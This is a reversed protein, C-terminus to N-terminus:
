FSSTSEQDKWWKCLTEKDQHSILWGYKQPVEARDFLTIGPSPFGPEPERREELDM